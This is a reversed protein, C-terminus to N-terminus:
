LSAQKTQHSARLLWDAYTFRVLIQISMQL